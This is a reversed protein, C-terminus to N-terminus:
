GPRRGSTQEIWKLGARSLQWDHFSDFAALQYGLVILWYVFQYSGKSCKHRLRRQAIWAGPWGGLLEWIHLQAEPIRWEGQLARRKDRAYAWYTLASIVLGYAGAWRLDVARQHLAMVPLVLLGAAIVLSAAVALASGRAHRNNFTKSNVKSFVM